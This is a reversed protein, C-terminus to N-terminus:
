GSLEGACVSVQTTQAFAGLAMCQTLAADRVVLAQLTVLQQPVPDILPPAEVGGHGPLVTGVTVFIVESLVKGQHSEVAIREVVLGNPELQNVSVARDLAVVAMLRTQDLCHVYARDLSLVAREVARKESEAFRARGAVSSVVRMVTLEPCASTIFAVGLGHPVAGLPEVVVL